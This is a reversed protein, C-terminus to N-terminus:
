NGDKKRKKMNHIFIIIGYPIIAKIFFKFTDKLAKKKRFEQTIFGNERRISDFEKDAEISDGMGGVLFNVCPDYIYSFNVNKNYFYKVIFNYDAAYKYREDYLSNKDHFSKKYIMGQHLMASIPLITEHRILTEIIKNEKVRNLSCLLVDPKEEKLKPIIYDLANSEYWDGSNLMHLYDGKAVTIGKNMANYVGTDTESIWYTIKKGYESHNAFEKIVNVSEDTSNGDIILYEFDTQTQTVVSEISKRLGDANNRNITIISLTPNM